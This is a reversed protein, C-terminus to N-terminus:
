KKTDPLTLNFEVIAKSGTNRKKGYDKSCRLTVSTNRNIKINLENGSRKGILHETSDSDSVAQYTDYGNSQAINKLNSTLNPSNAVFYYADYWPTTNDIGRGSDGNDCIKKANLTKLDANFKNFEKQATNGGFGGLMLFLIVILALPFAVLVVVLTVAGAVVNKKINKSVKKAM